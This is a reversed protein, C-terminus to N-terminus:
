KDPDTSKTKGNPKGKKLSSLYMDIKKHAEARSTYMGALPKPVPGQGKNKIEVMSPSLAAM